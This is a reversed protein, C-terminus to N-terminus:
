CQASLSTTDFYMDPLTNDHPNPKSVCVFKFFIFTMMIYTAFLLACAMQPPDIGDGIPKSWGGDWKAGRGWALKAAGSAVYMGTVM